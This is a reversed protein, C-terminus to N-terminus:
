RIKQVKLVQTINPNNKAICKNPWLSSKRNRNYTELVKKGTVVLGVRNVITKCEVKAPYCDVLIAEDVHLTGDDHEEVKIGSDMIDIVPQKTDHRLVDGNKIVFLPYGLGGFGFVNHPFEIKKSKAARSKTIFTTVTGNMVGVNVGLEKMFRFRGTIEERRATSRAGAIRVGDNQIAMTKTYSAVNDGFLNHVKAILTGLNGIHKKM